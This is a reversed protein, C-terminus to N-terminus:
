KEDEERNKEIFELITKVAKHVDALLEKKNTLEMSNWGHLYKMTYDSVNIGLRSCVAYSVLEAQYEMESVSLKNEKSSHLLAHGIEHILTKVNQSESNSENLTISNEEIVYQGFVLGLDTSGKFDINKSKMLKQLINMVFDYNKVDDELSFGILEPLDERKFNTQSIDFVPAQIFSRGVIRKSKRKKEKVEKKMAATAKKYPIWKGDDTQVLVSVSPAFIKISKEGKKVSTGKKKWEKFSAVFTAEPNQSLIMSVNNASYKYFRSSFELYEKMNEPSAFYSEIKKEMVEVLKNFLNEEM